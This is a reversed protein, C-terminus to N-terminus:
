EHYTLNDCLPGIKDKLFAFQRLNSRHM